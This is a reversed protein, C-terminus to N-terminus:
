RGWSPYNRLSNKFNKAQKNTPDLVLVKNSFTVVEENYNNKDFMDIAELYSDIAESKKNQKEYLMALNLHARAFAPNMELVKRYYIEASDLQELVFHYNGIVLVANDDKPHMELQTRALYFANNFDGIEAYADSLPVLWGNKADEWELEKEARDIFEAYKKDNYLSVLSDIFDSKAKDNDKASDVNNKSNCSILLTISALLYYIVKSIKM